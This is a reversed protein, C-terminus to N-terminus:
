KQFKVSIYMKNEFEEQVMRMINNAITYDHDKKKVTINVNNGDIKIFTSLNLQKKLKNELKEETAKLEDIKKLGEYANNKEELSTEKNTIIENYESVLSAREEDSEVQMATLVDTESVTTKVVSETNKNSNDSSTMLLENPMTIYYVSLVLILSFLTLFWMKQKNIMIDEM